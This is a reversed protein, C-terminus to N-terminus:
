TSRCSNACSIRQRVTPCGLAFRQKCFNCSQPPASESCRSWLRTRHKSFGHPECPCSTIRPSTLHVTGYVTEMKRQRYDKVPNWRRCRRCVRHLTCVEDAQAAAVAQQLAHMVQKGDGLSMGLSRGDFDSAPREIEAVSVESVDGWDTILQVKVIAKM